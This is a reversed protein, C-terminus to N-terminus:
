NLHQLDVLAYRARLSGGILLCTKLGLDLLQKVEIPERYGSENSVIWVESCGTRRCIDAIQLASGLVYKRNEPTAALPDRTVCGLIEVGFSFNSHDFWASLSDEGGGLLLARHRKKAFIRYFYNLWFAARRWLRLLLISVASVLAIQWSYCGLLVGGACIVVSASLLGLFFKKTALLNSAYEGLFLLVLLDGAFLACAPLLESGALGFHAFAFFTLLMFLADPFAKWSAPLLRSFVGILAAFLIGAAMLPYPLRYRRHKKVFILMAQYFDVYSKFRRTECSRGKFHLINVIPAYYNKFGLRQVRLCLDLDEAYMFYDPDFGGIQEFLERKICFFSGSIADVETVLEPDLYTMNYSAFFKSKPFLSALGVTKFIAGLPSPFKRRCAWQMSGDENLIRCGVAGADPRAEAFELLKKFAEKSVITDPNVFFLYPNRAQKAALNCGKGFGLNEASDLWEVKPFYAKTAPLIPEASGNDLVIVQAELDATAEMVSTLCAPLFGRSNYAVIIISCAPLM